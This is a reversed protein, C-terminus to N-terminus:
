AIQVEEAINGLNLMYSFSCAIVISDGVDFNNLVERLEELKQLDGQEESKNYM